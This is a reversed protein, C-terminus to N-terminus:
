LPEPDKGPNVRGHRDLRVSQSPRQLNRVFHNIKAVREKLSSFTGRRIAKQTIIHFWIEIQNLWSAYTPTFHVQYRPHAALWRQLRPHGRTPACLGILLCELRMRWPTAATEELM